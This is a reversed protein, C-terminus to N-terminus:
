AASPGDAVCTGEEERKSIQLGKWFEVKEKEEAAIARSGGRGGGEWALRKLRCNINLMGTGSVRRIDVSPPLLFLLPKPKGAQRSRLPPPFPPQHTRQEAGSTEGRGGGIAGGKKGKGHM